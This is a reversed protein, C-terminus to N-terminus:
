ELNLKKKIMRHSVFYYLCSLLIDVVLVGCLIIHYFTYDSFNGVIYNYIREFFSDNLTVIIIFITGLMQTAFYYGFYVGFAALIRNKRAIQGVSICAYFLLYQAACSVIAILIIEIVYFIYHAGIDKFVLGSLYSAAKMTETFADGFMFIFFSLFVVALSILSFLLATLLKTLIHNSTTVPLTFSLYGESTFLNKYFRTICFIATMIVCVIITICYVVVSSTFFINYPVSSGDEFIQVIRGLLAVGLLIAYMPLMGRLWAVTEHKFLKKVM